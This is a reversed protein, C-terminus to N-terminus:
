PSSPRNTPPEAPSMPCKRELHRALDVIGSANTTVNRHSVPSPIQGLQVVVLPHPLILQELRVRTV